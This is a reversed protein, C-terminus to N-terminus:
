TVEEVCVPHSVFSWGFFKDKWWREFGSRVSAMIFRGDVKLGWALSGIFSSPLITLLHRPVAVHHPVVNSYPNSSM